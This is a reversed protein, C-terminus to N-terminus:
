CGRVGTHRRLVAIRDGLDLDSQSGDQHLSRHAAGASRDVSDIFGNSSWAPTFIARRAPSSTAARRLMLAHTPTTIRTSSITPAASSLGAGPMAGWPM